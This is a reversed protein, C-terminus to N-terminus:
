AVAARMRSEPEEVCVYFACPPVGEGKSPRSLKWQVCLFRVDPRASLDFPISYVGCYFKPPFKALPGSEWHDGDPSGWVSVELLQHETMRTIGLTLYRRSGPRCGLVVVPGKGDNFVTNEPLLYNLVM